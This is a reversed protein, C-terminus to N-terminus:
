LGHCMGSPGYLGDNSNNYDVGADELMLRLFEARGKFAAGGQGHYLITWEAGTSISSSKGSNGDNKQPSTRQLMYALGGGLAVGALFLSAMTAEGKVGELRSSMTLQYKSPDHSDGRGM